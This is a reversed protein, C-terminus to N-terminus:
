FNGRNKCKYHHDIGGEGNDHCFDDCKHVDKLHQKTVSPEDCVPCKFVRNRCTVAHSPTGKKFTCYYGFCKHISSMHKEIDEEVGRFDCRDFPCAFITTSIIYPCNADHEFGYEGYACKGRICGHESCVHELISARTGVVTCGNFPCPVQLTEDYVCVRHTIKFQYGNREYKCDKTCGHAEMIHQGFVADGSGTFGCDPFNCKFWPRIPCQKDHKIDWTGREYNAIPKCKSTCNHAENMHEFSVIKGANSATAHTVRWIGNIWFKPFM